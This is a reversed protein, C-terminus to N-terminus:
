WSVNLGLYTAIKYGMSELYIKLPNGQMMNCNMYVNWVFLDEDKTEENPTNGGDFYVGSIGNMSAEVIRKNIIAICKKYDETLKKASESSLLEPYPNKKIFRNLIETSKM